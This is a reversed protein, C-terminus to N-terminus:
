VIVKRKAKGGKRGAKAAAKPNNRWNAPNIKWGQKAGGLKGAKAHGEPNGKWSM